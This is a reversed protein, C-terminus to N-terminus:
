IAECSYEVYVVSLGLTSFCNYHLMALNCSPYSANKHNIYHIPRIKPMRNLGSISIMQSTKGSQMFCLIKFITNFYM